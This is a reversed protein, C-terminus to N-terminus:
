TSQHRGCWNPCMKLETPRKWWRSCTIDKWSFGLSVESEKYQWTSSHWSLHWALQFSLTKMWVTDPKEGQPDISRRQVNALEIIWSWRNLFAIFYSDSLVSERSQSQITIGCSLGQKRDTVWDKQTVQACVERRGPWRGRAPERRARPHTTVM